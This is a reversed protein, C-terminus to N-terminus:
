QACLKSSHLFLLAHLAFQSNRLMMSAVCRQGRGVAQSIPHKCNTHMVRYMILKVQVFLSTRCVALISLYTKNMAYQGQLRSYTYKNNTQLSSKNLFKNPLACLPSNDQAAKKSFKPILQNYQM